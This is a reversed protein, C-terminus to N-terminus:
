SNLELEDLVLIQLDTVRRLGFDNTLLADCGINLAAAVQLADPTKLNYRARLEAAHEAISATVPVLQFHRSHILMNRYGNVLAQDGRQLPKSLVETLTIVSSFGEVKGERIYQVIATMREFYNPRKEVLYIFPASEIALRNIGAMALSIKM